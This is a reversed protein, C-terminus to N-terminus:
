RQCFYGFHKNNQNKLFRSVMSEWDLREPPLRYTYLMQLYMLSADSLRNRRNTKILSM